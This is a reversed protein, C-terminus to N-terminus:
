WQNHEDRESDRLLHAATVVFRPSILLGTGAPGFRQLAGNKRQRSSIQCIWRFPVDWARAVPRRNDGDIIGTCPREAPGDAEGSGRWPLSEDAPPKPAPDDKTNVEVRVVDAPRSAVNALTM